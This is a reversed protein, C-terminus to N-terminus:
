APEQSALWEVWGSLLRQWDSRASGPGSGGLWGAWRGAGLARGAAERCPSLWAACGLFLRRRLM